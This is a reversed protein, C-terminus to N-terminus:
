KNITSLNFFFNDRPTDMIQGSNLRKHKIAHNLHLSTLIGAYDKVCTSMSHSQM